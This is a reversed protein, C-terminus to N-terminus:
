FTILGAKSSIIGLNQSETGSLRGVTLEVEAWGNCLPGYENKEAYLETKNTFGRLFSGGRIFWEVRQKLEACSNSPSLWTKNHVNQKHTHGGLHLDAEWGSSQRELTSVDAGCSSGGGTGHRALIRYKIMQRGSGTFTIVVYAMREGLYKAGIKQCIYETSTQGNSFILFHDGDLMGLCRKGMGDLKPLVLKDIWSMNREDEQTFADKRDGEAYLLRKRDRM